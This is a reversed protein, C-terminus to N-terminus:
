QLFTPGSRPSLQPRSSIPAASGQPHSRGRNKCGEPGCRYSNKNVRKRNQAATLESVSGCIHPKKGHRGIEQCPKTLAPRANPSSMEGSRIPQSPTDAKHGYRVDLRPLYRSCEYIAARCPSGFSRGTLNTRLHGLAGGHAEIIVRCPLGVGTGTSKTTFFLEFITGTRV